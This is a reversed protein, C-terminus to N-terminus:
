RPRFCEPLYPLGQFWDRMYFRERWRMTQVMFWVIQSFGVTHHLGMWKTQWYHLGFHAIIRKEFGLLITRMLNFTLSQLRNWRYRVSGLFWVKVWQSRTVCIHRRFPGGNTWTINWWRNPQRGNGSGMHIEIQNSWSILYKFLLSFIRQTFKTHFRWNCFPPYKTWVANM